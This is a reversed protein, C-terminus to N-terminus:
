VLFQGKKLYAKYHEIENTLLKTVEEENVGKPLVWICCEHNRLGERFYPILHNYLDTKDYYFYSIHTGWPVSGVLEIGTNRINKSIM